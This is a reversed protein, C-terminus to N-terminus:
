TPSPSHGPCPSQPHRKCLVLARRLSSAPSKMSSEEAGFLLCSQIHDRPGATRVWLGCCQSKGGRKRDQHSIQNSPLKAARTLFSFFPLSHSVISIVPPLAIRLVKRVYKLLRHLETGPASCARVSVGRHCLIAAM